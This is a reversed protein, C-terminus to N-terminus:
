CIHSIKGLLIDWYNYESKNKQNFFEIKKVSERVFLTICACMYTHTYICVCVCVDLVGSKAIVFEHM